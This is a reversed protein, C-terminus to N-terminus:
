TASRLGLRRRALLLLVLAAAVGGALGGFLADLAIKRQFLRAVQLDTAGIGHMVEITARHTDLAGRAALVVAAATALAILLSSCAPSPDCLPDAADPQLRAGRRGGDGRGQREFGARQIDTLYAGANLTMGILVAAIPPSCSAPMPCPSSLPLLDARAAAHQHLLTVYGRVIARARHRGGFSLAAAGATGILLGGCFALFAIQLSLWAGALLSPLYPWIQGFQLTYSMQGIRLVHCGAPRVVILERGRTLAPADSARASAPRTCCTSASGSRGSRTPRAAAHAARLDRRQALGEARDREQRRRARLLLRRGADRRGEVEVKHKNMHEGVFDIVDIMADGRGQALARVADPYNDLLTVKAKKLNDEIFKVPTTGRVQVLTVNENDLEKWDKYPKGETTLVGFVETHVPVTFDIVKAREPQADDRGDRLRDQRDAVFPIRDPSGVQVIELKVGLM